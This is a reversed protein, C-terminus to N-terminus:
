KPESMSAEKIAETRLTNDNGETPNGARNMMLKSEAVSNGIPESGATNATTFIFGSRKQGATNTAVAPL